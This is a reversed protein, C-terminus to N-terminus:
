RVPIVVTNVLKDAITQSMPDWLPWLYGLVSAGDFYHALERRFARGKSITQDDDADVLRIRLLEKGLSQGTRSTRAIRNWYTVVVFFAFGAVVAWNGEATASYSVNGYGDSESVTTSAAYVYSCLPILGSLASDVLNAGVRRLWSAYESPAAYVPRRAPHESPEYLTLSSYTM